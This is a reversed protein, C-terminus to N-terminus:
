SECGPIVEYSSGEITEVRWTNWRKAAGTVSGTNAGCDLGISKGLEIDRILRGALIEGVGVLHIGPRTQARKMLQVESGVRLGLERVMDGVSKTILPPREKGMELRYEAGSGTSILIRNGDRTRQRSVSTFESTNMLQQNDVDGTRNIYAREGMKLNKALFGSIKYGIQVNSSGAQAVKELIIQRGTKLGLLEAFDRGMGIKEGTRIRGSGDDKGGLPLFYEDYHKMLYDEAFDDAYRESSMERYALRQAARLEETSNIGMAKFRTRLKKRDEDTVNDLQGPVPMGM